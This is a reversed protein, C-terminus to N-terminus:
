MGFFVGPPEVHMGPLPQVSQLQAFDINWHM